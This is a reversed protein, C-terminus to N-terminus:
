QEISERPNQHSLSVIQSDIISGTHISQYGALTNNPKQVIPPPITHVCVWFCGSM